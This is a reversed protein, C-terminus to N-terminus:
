PRPRCAELGVVERLRGLIADLLREESLDCHQADIAILTPWVAREAM